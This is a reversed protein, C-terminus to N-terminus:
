MNRKTLRTSRRYAPSATQQFCPALPGGTACAGTSPALSM